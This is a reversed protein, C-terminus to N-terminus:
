DLVAQVQRVIVDGGVTTDLPPEVSQEPGGDLRYSVAITVSASLPYSGDPTAESTSRHTYTHRVTSEEPYAAGLDAHAPPSGDGFDWTVSELRLFVEVTEGFPNIPPVAIDSGDWGDVWFWTPLGTVAFTPPSVGLSMSPALITEVYRQAEGRAVDALDVIDSPDIWFARVVAGGCYLWYPVAETSPPAGIAYYADTGYPIEVLRYTCPPSEGSTGTGSGGAVRPVLQGNRRLVLEVM